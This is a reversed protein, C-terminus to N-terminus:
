WTRNSDRTPGAVRSSTSVVTTVVAPAVALRGGGAVTVRSTAAAAPDALELTGAAVNTTGSYTNATDYVLTGTGTKTVSAAIVITRYGVQFQTQHGSAVDLTVAPPTLGGLFQNWAAQDFPAMPVGGGVVASRFGYSNIWPQLDPFSVQNDGNYDGQTFPQSTSGYTGRMTLFDTFDVVGNLDADAQIPLAPVIPGALTPDAVYDLFGEVIQVDKWDVTDNGNLDFKLNAITGSTGTAKVQGRITVQPVFLALDAATVQDDRNVDVPKFAIAGAVTNAVAERYLLQTVPFANATGAYTIERPQFRDFTQGVAGFAATRQARNAVKSSRGEADLRYIGQLRQADDTNSNWVGFFMDAGAFAISSIRQSSVTREFFDALRAASVAVQVGSTTTGDHTVFDIGGANGVGATGSVGSFYVRDVGGSSFVGPETNTMDGAVIREPAGCL